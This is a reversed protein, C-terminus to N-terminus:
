IIVISAVWDERFIHKEGNKSIAVYETHNLREIKVDELCFRTGNEDKYRSTCKRDPVKEVDRLLDFVSADIQDIMERQTRFLCTHDDPTDDDIYNIFEKHIDDEYEFDEKIKERAYDSLQSWIDVAM